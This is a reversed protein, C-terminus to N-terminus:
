ERGYDDEYRLIDDEGFYTGTQVEILEFHEPGNNIIRHKDGQKIYTYDNQHSLYVNENRIIKACGKLVVWHENRHLHSQLSLRAGPKISILKIKTSANEFLVEFYGWPRKIKSDKLKM